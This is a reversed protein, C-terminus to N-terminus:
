GGRGAGEDIRLAELLGPMGRLLEEAAGIAEERADAASTILQLQAVGQVAVALRESQRNIDDIRRTVTGDPLVFANFIRIQEEVGSDGIRRFAYQRVPLRRGGVVLEAEAPEGQAADVWGSAPYCVPPYHGIMDRSDNCHVVMVHVRPRGLCQYLRSLTANPRLLKQAEPPVRFPVSAWDGIIRPVAAMAGAVAQQREQTDASLQTRNPLLWALLALVALSTWPWAPSWRDLITRPPTM